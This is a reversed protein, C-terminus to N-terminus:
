MLIPLSSFWKLTKYNHPVFDCSLTWLGCRKFLFSLRLPNSGLDKRKGAKGSPWVPEREGSQVGFLKAEDVGQSWIWHVPGHGSLGIARGDSRPPPSALVFSPRKAFPSFGAGHGALRSPWILAVWLGDYRIVDGTTGSQTVTIICTVCFNSKYIINYYHEMIM